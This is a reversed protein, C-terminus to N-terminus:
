GSWEWHSSKPTSPASRHSAALPSWRTLTQAESQSRFRQSSTSQNLKGIGAVVSTFCAEPVTPPAPARGGWWLMSHRQLSLAVQRGGESGEAGPIPRQQHVHARANVLLHDDVVEGLLLYVCRSSTVPAGPIRRPPHSRASGQAWLGPAERQSGVPPPSSVVARKQWTGSGTGPSGGGPEQSQQHTSTHAPRLHPGHLSVPARSWSLHRM